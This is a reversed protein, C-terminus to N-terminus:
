ANRPGLTRPSKATGSRTADSNMNNPGGRTSADSAKPSRTKLGKLLNTDAM